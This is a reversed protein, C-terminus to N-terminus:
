ILAGRARAAERSTRFPSTGRLPDPATSTRRTLLPTPPGMRPRALIAFAEPPLTLYTRVPM